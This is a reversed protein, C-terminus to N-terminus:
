RGGGNHQPTADIETEISDEADNTVASAGALQDFPDDQSVATNPQSDSTHSDEVSNGREADDTTDVTGEVAAEISELYATFDEETALLVNESKRKEWRVLGHTCSALGGCDCDETKTLSQVHKMARKVVVSKGSEPIDGEDELVHRAKSATLKLSGNTKDVDYVPEGSTMKAILRGFLRAGRRSSAGANDEGNKADIYIRHIPLLEHRVSESLQSADIEGSEIDDLRQNVSEKWNSVGQRWGTLDQVEQRLYQNERKVEELDSQLDRVLSVLEAKSPESDVDSDTLQEVSM